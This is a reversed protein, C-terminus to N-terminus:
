PRAPPALSRRTASKPAHVYPGLAFICLTSIAMCTGFVVRMPGYSHALDHVKGMSFTGIAIGVNSAAFTLGYLAGFSRLGFYRSILYANQAVEGGLGLGMLLTGTFLLPTGSEIRVSHVILLGVLAAAFYPVIIKPTNVQNVLVGSTLQGTVVGAFTFSLAETAVNVNFGHETLMPVAHQLTGLLSMSGLMIAIFIL